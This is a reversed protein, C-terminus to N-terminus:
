RHVSPVAVLPAGGPRGSSDAAGSPSSSRPSPSRSSTEATLLPIRARSSVGVAAVGRVCGRSRTRRGYGGSRRSRRLLLFSSLVFADGAGRGGATDERGAAEVSSCSPLCPARLRQSLPGPPGTTEQLLGEMADYRSSVPPRRWKALRTKADGSCTLFRWGGGGPVPYFCRHPHDSFRFSRPVTSQTAYAARRRRHSLLNYFISILNIMISDSGNPVLNRTENEKHTEHVM